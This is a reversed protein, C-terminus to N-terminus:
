RAGMLPLALMVLTFWITVGAVMVPWSLPQQGVFQGFVLAVAALNALDVLKQGFAPRQDRPLRLM